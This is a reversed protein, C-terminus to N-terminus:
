KIIMKIQKKNINYSTKLSKGIKNTKNNDVKINKKM